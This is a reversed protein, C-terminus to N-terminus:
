GRLIMRLRLPEPLLIPHWFAFCAQLLLAQLRFVGDVGFSILAAGFLGIMFTIIATLLSTKRMM